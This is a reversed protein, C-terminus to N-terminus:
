GARADAVAPVAANAGTICERVDSGEPLGLVSYLREARTWHPLAAAPNDLQAMANGISRHHRAQFVLDETDRAVALGRHFLGLAQSDMGFGQMLEGAILLVVSGHVDRGHESALDVARRLAGLAATRDGEARLISARLISAYAEVAINRISRALTISEAAHGLADAHMGSAHLFLGLGLLANCTDLPDGASLRLAQEGHMVANDPHGFQVLNEGLHIHFMAQARADGLERATVLGRQAVEAQSSLDGLHYHFREMCLALGCARDWLGGAAASALANHLNDEEARFWGLAATVTSLEPSEAPRHEARIRPQWASDTILRRGADVTHLYYDLLRATAADREAAPEEDAVTTTYLRVLDHRGYRDTGTRHLLHVALLRELHVQSQAITTGALAAAAYRDVDVGPHRSLLRFLRASGPDLQHYSWTLASRVAAGSDPLSLECLRHHEDSLAEVLSRVTTHPQGSGRAAAIRLALPLRDCLEALEAAAEPEAAVREAGLVVGLVRVAAERSLAPVTMRLAGETATLDDLRSRSSVLVECGSTGPLLPRVQDASRANDLIVLMRRGALVSRYLAAREELDAPIRADPVGLARLFGTLVQGPDVPETEDFGRLDCFLNGDPFRAAVQHAWRLALATKGVGAPGTLIRIAGDGDRGSGLEALEASRGVFGRNQRPLQAPVAAPTAPPEETELVTNLAALLGPGPDVGLEDALRARTEHYVDLAEAQRGAQHLSLVLKEVLPERLPRLAVAERLRDVAEAARGLRLLRRGLEQVANVASEELRASVERHLREAPVDSMAPGRRLALASNLLEVAEADSTNAAEALLDEFRTVDLLSRDAVLQYGPSRTVLEVGDGLDKRLQAIHGQLAAKASRPPNGDWVIDMLRDGSVVQNLELALAALVSRRKAAGLGAVTGDARLLEVPGLLRIRTM